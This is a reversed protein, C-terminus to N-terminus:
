LVQQRNSSRRRNSACGVGGKGKSGSGGGPNSSVRASGVVDSRTSSSVRVRMDRKVAAVACLVNDCEGVLNLSWLLRGRRKKGVRRSSCISSASYCSAPIAGKAGNNQVGFVRRHRATHDMAYGIQRGPTVVLVGVSPLRPSVFVKGV